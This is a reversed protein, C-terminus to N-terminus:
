KVEWSAAGLGSKRPLLPTSGRSEGEEGCPRRNPGGVNPTPMFAGNGKPGSRGGKFLGAERKRGYTSGAWPAM